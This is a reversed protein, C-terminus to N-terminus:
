VHTPNLTLNAISQLNNNMTKQHRPENIWFSYFWAESRSLLDEEPSM